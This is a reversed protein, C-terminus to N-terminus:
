RHTLVAPNVALMLTNSFLSNTIQKWKIDSSTSNAIALVVRVLLVSIGHINVNMADRFRSFILRKMLLVRLELICILPTKGAAPNVSPALSFPRTSRNSQPIWKSQFQILYFLHAKAAPVAYACYISSIKGMTMLLWVLLTKTRPSKLRSIPETHSFWEGVRRARNSVYM